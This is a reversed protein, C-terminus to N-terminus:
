VVGQSQMTEFEQDSYGLRAVIVARNHEGLLPARRYVWPEVQTHPSIPAGPYKLKGAVPHDLEVYYDRAELQEMELLDQMTSVFAFGLGHEQGAKFINVKENDLLWPLMLADVEDAHLLRGQRSAYKPDALEAREMINAVEPWNQDPGAIIGVYGDGCPYIGWAARGYGRNGVRSYEQGSYSYQMLANELVNTAYEAIALDIQQGVGTDEAYMLATMTAVFANQGAGLQALPAGEKLPEQEPEGTINMLGGTAYLNIEEAKWDRYPGTQGFNSISTMVLAPNEQKLREYSLGLRDMVGPAFNEVLIDASKALNLLIEKGQPSKLDLTVSQKSTNLYLFWAGAEVGRGDGRTLPPNLPTQNAFPGFHRMRDGDIPREIKVVDAGLTALLKTCYPGSLYHTLDVVKVGELLGAM